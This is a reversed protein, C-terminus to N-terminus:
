QGYFGDSITHGHQDICKVMGNRIIKYELPYDKNFKISFNNLFPIDLNLQKVYQYLIDEADRCTELYKPDQKIFWLYCNSIADMIYSKGAFFLDIVKGESCVIYMHNKNFDFEDVKVDFRSRIVFDYTFNFEREHETKLLNARYLRFFMMGIHTLYGNTRTKFGEYRLMEEPIYKDSLFEWSKPNYTKIIDDINAEDTEVNNLAHYSVYFRDNKPGPLGSEMCSSIFYEVDFPFNPYNYWYNRSHGSLCAAIRM